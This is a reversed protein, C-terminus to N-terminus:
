LIKGQQEYLRQISKLDFPEEIHLMKKRVRMGHLPMFVTDIGLSILVPDLPKIMM